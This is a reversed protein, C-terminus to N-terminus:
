PRFIGAPMMLPAQEELRVINEERGTKANIFVLFEEEGRAVTFEYCLVERGQRDFIVVRQVGRVMLEPNLSAKAQATGIQGVFNGRERHYMTFGNGEFGLVEGDDLAIRVRLLDPYFLIGDEAYCFTFIASGVGEEIGLLELNPFRREALFELARRKATDQGIASGRLERENFMQFVRGGRKVVEVVVRRAADVPHAFIFSYHPLEADTVQEHSVLRLNVGLHRLFERAIEEARALPVEEATVALPAPRAVNVHEGFTIEPFQQVQDELARFRGMIQSDRPARDYLTRM